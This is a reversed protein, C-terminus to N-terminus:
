HWEVRVASRISCQGEHEVKWEGIETGVDMKLKKQSIFGDTHVRKINKHHKQLQQFMVRRGYAPLFAGIRAYDTKFRKTYCQVNVLFSKKYPEVHVVGRDKLDLGGCVNLDVQSENAMSLGGWLANMILKCRKRGKESCKKYVGDM